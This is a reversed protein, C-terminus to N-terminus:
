TIGGDWHFVAYDGEESSGNPNLYLSFDYGTEESHFDYDPAKRLIADRFTGWQMNPLDVVITLLLKASDIFGSHQINRSVELKQISTEADLEELVASLTKDEEILAKLTKDDQKLKLNVIDKM